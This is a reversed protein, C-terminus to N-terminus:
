GVLAALVERAKDSYWDLCEAAEESTYITALWECAAIIRHAGTTALEDDDDPADGMGECVLRAEEVDDPIIAPDGNTTLWLYITGDIGIGAALGRQTGDQLLYGDEDKDATGSDPVDSISAKYVAIENTLYYKDSM